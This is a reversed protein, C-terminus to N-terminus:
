VSDQGGDGMVCVGCVSSLPRASGCSQHPCRCRWELAEKVGGGELLRDHWM